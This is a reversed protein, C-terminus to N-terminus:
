PGGTAWAQVLALPTGSTFGPVSNATVLMTELDTAAQTIATNFNAATPADGGPVAEAVMMEITQGIGVLGPGQASGFGPNNSQNQGVGAGGAGDPGFDIDLTLRVKYAM